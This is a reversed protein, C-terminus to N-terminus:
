LETKITPQTEENVRYTSYPWLNGAQNQLTDLCWAEGSSYWQSFLLNTPVQGRQPPRTEESPEPFHFYDQLVYGSM